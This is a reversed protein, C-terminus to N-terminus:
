TLLIYAQTFMRHQRRVTATSMTESVYPRCTIKPTKLWQSLSIQKDRVPSGRVLIMLSTTPKETCVKM